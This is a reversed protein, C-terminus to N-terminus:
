KGRLEIPKISVYCFDDHKFHNKKQIKDCRIGIRGTAIMLTVFVTSILTLLLTGLVLIDLPRLTKM